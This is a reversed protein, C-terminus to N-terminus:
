CQDQNISNNLYNEILKSLIEVRADWSSTHAYATREKMGLTGQNIIEAVSEVFGEKSSAIRVFPIATQVEPLDTSIVPKGSALYEYLKLPNVSQTLNNLLFPILCVDFSQLYQPLQERPKRGLLHVNKYKLLRSVDTKVPGILVLSWDPRQSAIYEILEFDVWVHLTGIFGLRPSPVAILEDPLPFVESVAQNFLEFDVGNPTYFSRKNFESLRQTNKEASSFILDVRSALQGELQKIQTTNKHPIPMETWDDACHYISLIDGLQDIIVGSDHIFSWLIPQQFDLIKIVRRVGHIYFYDNIRRIWNNYQRFPLLPPPSYVTLGDTQRLAEGFLAKQWHHREEPVTLPSLMTLYPEVFLVRNNRAFRRAIQQKSTWLDDYFVGSLIVIDVGSIM